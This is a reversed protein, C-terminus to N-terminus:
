SLADVRQDGHLNHAVGVVLGGRVDVRVELLLRQAPGRDVHLLHERVPLLSFTLSHPSLSSRSKQKVEPKDPMRRVEYRNDPVLPVGHGASYQEHPKLEKRLQHQLEVIGSEHEPRMRKESDLIYQLEIFVFM